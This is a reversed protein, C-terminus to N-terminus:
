KYYDTGNNFYDQLALKLENDYKQILIGKKANKSIWYRKKGKSLEVVAKTIYKCIYNSVAKTNEVFSINSYGYNQSNYNSITYIQRGKKVLPKNTKPNIAKTMMSQPIGSMLGHFHWRYQGKDYDPDNPYVIKGNYYKDKVHQEPVVLYVLDPFAKRLNNLYCSLRKVCEDYDTADKVMLDDNFTYTVFYEWQNAMAYDYIKRKSRSQSIALSKEAKRVKLEGTQEERVFFPSIKEKLCSNYLNFEKGICM